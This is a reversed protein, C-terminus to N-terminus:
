VGQSRANRERERGGKRERQRVRQRSFQNKNGFTAIVIRGNGGIQLYVYLVCTSCTELVFELCEKM